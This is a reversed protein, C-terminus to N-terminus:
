RLGIPGNREPQGDWYAAKMLCLLQGFIANMVEEFGEQMWGPLM